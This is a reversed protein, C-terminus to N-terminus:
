LHPFNSLGSKRWFRTAARRSSATLSMFHLHAMALRPYYSCRKRLGYYYAIEECCHWLILENNRCIWTVFCCFLLCQWFRKHHEKLQKCVRCELSWRRRCRMAAQYDLSTINKKCLITGTTDSSICSYSIYANTSEIWICKEKGIWVVMFISLMGNEETEIMM